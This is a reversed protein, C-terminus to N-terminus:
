TWPRKAGPPIRNLAELRRAQRGELTLTLIPQPTAAFQSPSMGFLETFDRIQHSQDYYRLMLEEAEKKDTIGRLYSAFDLARARRLVQKPSMGFDRTVIRGVTRESVGWERAFDGISRTPDIFAQNEFAATLDHPRASGYQQVWRRVTEELIRLKDEPEGDSEIATFLWDENFDTEPPVIFRDLVDAMPVGSLAQLAGARLSYGVSVFAGSVALPKRVTNPGFILVSRGPRHVGTKMAAEWKGSLQVHVMATDNFLGCDLRYDDPLDVEIAYLRGIWPALDAAPARNYSLAQGDSTSERASLVARDVAPQLRKSVM